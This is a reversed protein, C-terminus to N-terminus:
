SQSSSSLIFNGVGDVTNANSTFILYIEKCLLLLCLEPRLNLGVGFLALLLLVIMVTQM